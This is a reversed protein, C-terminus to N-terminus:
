QSSFYGTVEVMVPCRLEKSLDEVVSEPLDKSCLLLLDREAERFSYGEVGDISMIRSRFKVSDHEM